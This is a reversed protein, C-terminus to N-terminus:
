GQDTYRYVRAQDFFVAFQVFNQIPSPEQWRDPSFKADSLTSKWALNWMSRKMMNGKLSSFRLNSGIKLLWCETIAGALLAFLTSRPLVVTCRGRRLPTLVTELYLYSSPSMKLVFEVRWFRSPCFCQVKDGKDRRRAFGSWILFVFRGCVRFIEYSDRLPYVGRCPM